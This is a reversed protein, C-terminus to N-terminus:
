TCPTDDLAIRVGAISPAPNEEEDEEVTNGVFHHWHIAIPTSTFTYETFKAEGPFPKIELPEPVLLDHRLLHEIYDARFLDLNERAEQVTEGQTCCGELEPNCAVYIPEDTTAMDRFVFTAYKRAALEEAQKRLERSM